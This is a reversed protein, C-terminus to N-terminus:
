DCGIGHSRKGRFDGHPHREAEILQPSGPLWERIGLRGAPRLGFIQYDLMYTLRNLPRYYAQQNGSITSDASSFLATFNSLDRNTANNVVIDRDDWVFGNLLSNGYTVLTAFTLFVVMSVTSKNRFTNEAKQLFANLVSMSM